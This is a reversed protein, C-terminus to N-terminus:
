LYLMFETASAILPEYMCYTTVRAIYSADISNAILVIRRCGPVEERSLIRCQSIEAGHAPCLTERFHDEPNRWDLRFRTLQTDFMDACEGYRALHQSHHASTDSTNEM